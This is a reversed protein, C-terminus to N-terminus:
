EDMYKIYKLWEKLNFRSSEKSSLSLRSNPPKKIQILESNKFIYLGGFRGGSLWSTSDVTDFNFMKLKKLATFGLGHIMCNNQHAQEIFWNFFVQEKPKIERTVIGGISIYDYHKALDLFYQKGRKKHWVPISKKGTRQELIERMKEVEKLGIVSDIDLEFFYKIDYKNIFDAYRYVYDYYEKLSLNGKGNMFSFAGSDLLFMKCNKIYEMQWPKIYYFSELVYPIQETSKIIEENSHTGALFIKM